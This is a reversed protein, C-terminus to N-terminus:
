STATTQARNLCDCLREAFVPLYETRSTIHNGPIVHIEVEGEIAKVVKRWGAHRWPEESTWFFAIKGPYLGPTYDLTVWDYMNLFEQRLTEVRPVLAKLKLSLPGFGGKSRRFGPEGQEGNGMLESNKLLRYHSFRLYRYVHQVRLFWDFQKDQGLRILNGCRSIVSRVLRRRAPVPADPDMLVLLDVTQGQAQLQRAMEYAMLGGNCWGGLLYPGEPQVTRLVEIHAAAVAEFPPPVPLDDFKYPELLYFPQDPGLYRPLEWNFLAAGTWQGHLYFFPRKSGSTQVAVITARSDAKAAETSPIAEQAKLQTVIEALQAVTTAEVFSRLPVEVQLSTYLRSAIQTAQLSGGGLAFFDDHISVRDLKLVAAWIEVLQEEVRTRPSAVQQQGGPQRRRQAAVAQLVQEATSLETAIRLLPNSKAETKTRLTSVSVAAVLGDSKDSLEEDSLGLKEAPPIYVLGILTETGISFCSRDGDVQKSAAENSELFERAPANKSTPIFPVIVRNVGREHAIEGLKALMQHEVGRGLARCSLLFTDVELEEPRVTYLIVGVLGYDGFRDSVEVVLCEGSSGGKDARCFQRIESETRRITTCNFQNTRQTLQAARSLQAEKLPTIQVHLELGELFDKLSSSAKQFAQRKIQQVYLGTRKEDEATARLHDFAWFHQLLHPLRGLDQPLPFTPVEPCSAQVEACELPSDDIFIFSELSLQLEEALSRLNQSKAQWNIRWAVLHERRLRMGPHRAFVDLVDQENNKSCLCLLMGAAQQAVLFEQLHMRPEDVVVGLAGDEGCVGRWLTQDCDLVIVKYPTSRLAYIRRAILTGLAAFFLPTFPVHGVKDGYPDHVLSVPYLATVEASRILQVGGIAALDEALRDEMRAFFARRHANAEVAPSAPCVCVLYPTASRSAAVQVAQSLERGSREVKEEAIGDREGDTEFRLWDEFRLLLVNVGRQNTALLSTPDLLQQFLQHYPAFAITSPVALEQMWYALAEEVPEATFTAAIAISQKHLDQRVASASPGEAGGQDSLGSKTSLPTM